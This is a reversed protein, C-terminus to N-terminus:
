DHNSFAFTLGLSLTQKLRPDSDIERDYLLQVYLNLMLYKNINITLDNEWDVDPYRWEGEEATGDTEEAISSVIAEYVKLISKFELWGVKNKANLESVLELGGDNTVETERTLDSQLEDRDIHQRAGAGLRATWDIQKNEILQASAGMTETLDIPNIYLEETSDSLDLFQSEFRVSAFPSIKRGLTMKLLSEFDIRDTSKDFQSWKKTEPDQVKTQGFALRLVNRTNLKPALQKQAEADMKTTWSMSGAEGGTWNDSYTNLSLLASANLSFKWKGQDKELSDAGTGDQASVCVALTLAAIIAFAHNKV